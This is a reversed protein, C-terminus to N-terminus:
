IDENWCLWIKTTKIRQSFCFCKQEKGGAFMTVVKKSRNFAFFDLRRVQISFKAGKKLQIQKM